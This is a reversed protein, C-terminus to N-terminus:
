GVYRTLARQILTPYDDAPTGDGDPMAARVLRGIRPGYLLMYVSLVFVVLVDFGASVVETLLAGGFSVISSSGKVIKDGLTQLATEGQKIFQVHLGNS